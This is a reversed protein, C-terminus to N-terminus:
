GLIFPLVYSFNLGDLSKILSTYKITIIRIEAIEKLEGVKM